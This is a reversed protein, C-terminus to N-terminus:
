SETPFVAPGPTLRASLEAALFDSTKKQAQEATLIKEALLLHVLRELQSGAQKARRSADYANASAYDAATGDGNPTLKRRLSLPGGHSHTATM